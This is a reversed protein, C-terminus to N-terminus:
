RAHRMGPFDDPSFILPVSPKDIKDPNKVPPLQPQQPKESEEPPPPLPISDPLPAETTSDNNDRELPMPGNQGSKATAIWGGQSQEYITALDQDLYPRSSSKFSITRPKEPELLLLLHSNTIRDLLNWSFLVDTTGHNVFTYEYSYVSDMAVVRHQIEVGKFNQTINSIPYQPPQPPIFPNSTAVTGTSWLYTLVATVVAAIGLFLWGTLNKM